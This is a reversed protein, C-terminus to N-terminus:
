GVLIAVQLDKSPGTVLMISARERRAKFNSYPSMQTLIKSMIEIQAATSPARMAM